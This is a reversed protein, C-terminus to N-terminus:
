SYISKIKEIKDLIMNKLEKPEIVEIGESFQIIWNALGESLAVETLLYFKKDDDFDPIIHNNMGFKDFIPETLSIDCKIKLKAIDGSFMGFLKKSYDAVDFYNKYECVESFPRIVSNEIIELNHIRDIRLHMLNDYKPNNGVLYYHDNAWIMAYPSIILEKLELKTNKLNTIQQMKEYNCKIIKRNDIAKSLKHITYYIKENTSKLRNDIYVQSSLKKMENESCLSGLQKIIKKSKDKTIFNASQVADILLRIEVLEFDRSGIYWGKKGYPSKIIDYGFDILANIDDYVSKREADIGNKDLMELIDNCNIPHWEDSYKLLYDQILLLKKKVNNRGAM